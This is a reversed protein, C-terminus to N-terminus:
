NSSLKKIAEDFTKVSIIKIKYNHKKKEKLAENYNRGAPALFIDAKAKVAGKLKYKIGDISGVKGDSEITGTGVIKRNKTIDEKTLQNYIELASILGGSPGSESSKFKFKVNPDIDYTIFTEMGIGAYLTDDEKYIKATKSLIKNNRRVKFNIVDNEKLTKIYKRVEELDKYKKQDISIIEDGVKLDTNDGKITYIIYNKREKEVLEKDAKTYAAKIANNNANKLMLSSRFNIDEVSENDNAQYDSLDEREFSPIIYSLLYTLLNGELESVYALNLSGKSKYGDEVEIRSGASFTGGGTIIYCNVPIKFVILLVCVVVLFKYNEQIYEKVKSYIKNFM